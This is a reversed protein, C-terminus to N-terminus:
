GGVGWVEVGVGRFFGRGAACCREAEGGGFSALFGRGVIVAMAMGERVSRGMIIEGIRGEGADRHIKGVWQSVDMVQGFPVYLRFPFLDRSGRIPLLLLPSAPLM